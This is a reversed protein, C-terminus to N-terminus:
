RRLRATRTYRWRRLNTTPLTMPRRGFSHLNAFGPHADISVGNARASLATDRM